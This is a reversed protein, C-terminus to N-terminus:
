LKLDRVSDLGHCHSSAAIKFAEFEFRILCWDDWGGKSNFAM